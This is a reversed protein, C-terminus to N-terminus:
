GESEWPTLDCSLGPTRGHPPPEPLCLTALFHGDQQADRSERWPRLSCPEKSLSAPIQRTRGQPLLAAQSALQGIPPSSPLVVHLPQLIYVCGLARLANPTGARWGDPGQRERRGATGVGGPSGQDPSGIKCTAGARWGLYVSRDQKEAGLESSRSVRGIPPESRVGSGQRAAEWEPTGPPFHECWATGEWGGGALTFCEEPAPSPM